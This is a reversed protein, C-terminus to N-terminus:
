KDMDDGSTKVQDGKAAQFGRHYIATKTMHHTETRDASRGKVPHTSLKEHIRQSQSKQDRFKNEAM